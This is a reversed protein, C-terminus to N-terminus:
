KKVEKTLDKIVEAAILLGMSAVVPMFSGPTTKKSEPDIIKNELVIPYEKSIAVKLKKVRRKKLEYRMVRALPDIETKYIDTIVLKQPDLRNGAGMSSIIKKNYKIANLVIAIKASITDICDIIYDYKNFDIDNINDNNIFMKYTNISVNPNIEELREKILDVKAKNITKSTAIIQRNINSISVVDKDVVDIYIIGSRVLAEAVYGGVGGVGILLIKSQKLKNLNDNGLLLNIRSFM